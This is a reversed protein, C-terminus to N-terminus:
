QSGSRSLAPHKAQLRHVSRTCASWRIIMLGAYVTILMQFIDTHGQLAPADRQESKNNQRVALSNPSAPYNVPGISNDVAM